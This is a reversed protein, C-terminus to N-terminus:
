WFRFSKIHTSFDIHTHTHLCRKKCTLRASVSQKRELFGGEKSINLSQVETHLVRVAEGVMAFAAMVVSVERGFVDLVLAIKHKSLLNVTNIRGFGGM